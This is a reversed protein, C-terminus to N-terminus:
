GDLGDLIEVLDGTLKKRTWQEKNNVSVSQEGRLFTEYSQLIRSKLVQREQYSLVEHLGADLLIQNVDSQPSGFALIDREAYLYEFLKGPILLDANTSDNMLLLLVSSQLYQRIVEDHAVYARVILRQALQEYGQIRQLVTDSIAGSLFIELSQAFAENEVCLEELVEWLMAPNRMDNLLGMHTIRFKRLSGVPQVNEFDTEDVGNTIMKVRYTKDKREFLRAMAPTCALVVNAAQMVKRELNRHLTMAFQGTKLEGLIDWDSWPDRFDAIWQINLKKKLGLGILHMSHPPGTTIVRDVQHQIIYNSLFDVSPRVWFRKPDPVFLNGRLWIMLRGILSLSQDKAVVGQKTHTSKLKATPEWIPFRIVEVHSPVDKLLSHDQLHFDPNEPTFVIPEWGFQPLYKVFKLWRQVGGGGSPPWYYTVIIVKKSM